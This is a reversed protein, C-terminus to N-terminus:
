RCVGAGLDDRPLVRAYTARQCAIIAINADARRSLAALRANPQKLMIM